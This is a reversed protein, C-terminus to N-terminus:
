NQSPEFEGPDKMVEDARTQIDDALAIAEALAPDDQNEIEDLKARIAKIGVIMTDVKGSTEKMEELVKASQATSMDIGKEIRRLRRVIDRLRLNRRSIGDM